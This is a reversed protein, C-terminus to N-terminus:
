CGPSPRVGPSGPQSTVRESLAGGGGSLRSGREEKVSAPLRPQPRVRRYCQPHEPCYLFM